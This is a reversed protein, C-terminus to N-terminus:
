IRTLFTMLFFYLLLGIPIGGCIASYISLLSNKWISFVLAQIATIIISILIIFLAMNLIEGWEPMKQLAKGGEDLFFLLTGVLVSVLLYKWYNSLFKTRFITTNKM